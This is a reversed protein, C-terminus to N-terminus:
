LLLSRRGGLLGGFRPRSARGAIRFFWRAVDVRLTPQRHQLWHVRRRRLSRCAAATRRPWDYQLPGKSVAGAPTSAAEFVDGFNTGSHEKGDVDIYAEYPPLTALHATSCGASIMVPLRDANGLKEFSRISFCQEWADDQGHGAHFVIRQGENLLKVLQDENPPPTKDNRRSDVYYLKEVAWDGPLRSAVQDMLSRSDVWGGVAVLAAAKLGPRDGSNVEHEYRMSKTIITELEALTSVPWRGVAIDPRYDVQDFNISNSKNKEGRVEGFYGAHFGDNEANWDDFTDDARALDAYYLDSPYFAYDFAAPTVRDLVMYRVPFVDADGVM